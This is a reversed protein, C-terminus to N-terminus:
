SHVHIMNSYPPISSWHFERPRREWMEIGGEKGEDMRGRARGGEREKGREGERGGERGREKGGRM